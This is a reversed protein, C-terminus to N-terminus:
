KNVTVIFRLGQEGYLRVEAKESITVVPTQAKAPAPMAVVGAVLAVLAVLACCLVSLRKALKSM